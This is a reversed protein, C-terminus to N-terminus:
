TGNPCEKNRKYELLWELYDADETPNWGETFKIFTHRLSAYKVDLANEATRWGKGQLFFEYAQNALSLVEKNVRSTEWSKKNACGTKLKELAEATHKKGRMGSSRSRMAREEDSQRRGVNGQVAKMWTKNRKSTISMKARTAEDPSVGLTTSQGGVGLNWGTAPAARLKYEIDRCYDIDGEILADVVYHGDYKLLAKHVVLRSGRKAEGLHKKIREAVTKTTIGVYGESFMDTHEPLHIWYVFAM